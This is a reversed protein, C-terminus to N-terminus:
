SSRTKRTKKLTYSIRRDLHVRRTNFKPQQRSLNSHIKLGVSGANNRFFRVRRGRVECGKCTTYHSARGLNLIAIGKRHYIGNAYKLIHGIRM